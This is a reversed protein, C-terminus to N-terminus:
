ALTSSKGQNHSAGAPEIKSDRAHLGTDWVLEVYAIKPFLHPGAPRAFSLPAQIPFQMRKLAPM